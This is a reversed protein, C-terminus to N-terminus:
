FVNDNEKMQHFRQKIYLLLVHVITDKWDFSFIEFLKYTPWSELM